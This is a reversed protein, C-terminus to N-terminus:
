ENMIRFDIYESLLRGIVRTNSVMHLTVVVVVAHDRVCKGLEVGIRGIKSGDKRMAARKLFSEPNTSNPGTTTSFFANKKPILLTQSVEHPPRIGDM